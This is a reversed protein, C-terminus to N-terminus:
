VYECNITTWNWDCDECVCSQRCKPWYIITNHVMVVNRIVNYLGTLPLISRKRAFPLYFIFQHTIPPKLLEITLGIIGKFQACPTLLRRSCFIFLVAHMTNNVWCVCEYVRSVGSSVIACIFIVGFTSRQFDAIIFHTLKIWESEKSLLAYFTMKLKM